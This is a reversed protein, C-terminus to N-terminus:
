AQPAVAEASGPAHAPPPRRRRRWLALVGRGVLLVVLLVALGIGAGLWALVSSRQESSSAQIRVPGDGLAARWTGGGPSPEGANTRVDDGPLRVEVALSIVEDLPEGLELEIAEVPRGVPLGDLEAALAEDGFAEIGGRLDVVGRVSWETRAFPTSRDVRFRRLAGDAGAIEQVVRRAEAPTGFGKSASVEAGGGPAGRPGDVSWGAARLDDVELVRELDGGLRDVADGDLAVVVEVIGSGDDAVDIQVGIDVRCGTAALVLLLGLVAPLVRGSGRRPPSGSGSAIL